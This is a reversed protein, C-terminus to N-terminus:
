KAVDNAALDSPLLTQLRCKHQRIRAVARVLMPYRQRAARSVPHHAAHLLYTFSANEDGPSAAFQRVSQSTIYELRMSIEQYAFTDCLFLVQGARPKVAEPPAEM